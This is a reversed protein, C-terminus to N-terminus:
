GKLTKDVAQLLKEVLPPLNKDSAVLENALTPAFQAKCSDMIDHLARIYGDTGAYDRVVDEYIAQKCNPCTKETKQRKAITKDKKRIHESVANDGQLTTITSEIIDQYGDDILMGEFDTGNPIIFVQSDKFSELTTEKGFAAKITKELKKITDNEGDSFIFWPINFAEAFIVYPTYNGAGNVGIVDIGLEVYECEFHKEAFIPLAQEETEGEVFILAKSFLIEGKSALVAQMLKRKDEKSLSGLPLQGSKVNGNLKHIGRVNDLNAAAAVYPSHTSIIKQGPMQYMQRYLQKQANPHLHSEPEEIAIIPYIPMDESELSKQQDIFAKFTLLSSWSRTGMGHYDMPFSDEATGYQISLSKNLDRLKKAFPSVSVKGGDKDMTSDIGKLANTIKQLVNSKGITERNLQDILNEIEEVDEKNYDSVVESLMKGMYSSRSKIDDLIDRQADIYFFSINTPIQFRKGEIHMWKGDADEWANLAKTEKIIEPKLVSYQYIARIAIFAGVPEMQSATGFIADWDDSFNQIRKGTEDVPVIRADITITNDTLGHEQHFDEHTLFSRNGFLLQLSKLISTKGANNMGTLVTTDALNIQFDKLGRFGDIRLKDILIKNM